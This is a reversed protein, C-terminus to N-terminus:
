RVVPVRVVRSTGGAIMRAFYMGTGVGIGNQDRGDWTVETPGSALERDVLSRISRGMVDYLVLRTRMRGPLDLRFRTSGHSPSIGALALWLVGRRPEPEPVGVLQGVNTLWFQNTGGWVVKRFRINSGSFGAWFYTGNVNLMESGQHVYEPSAATLHLYDYLNTPTTSWHSATRDTVDTGTIKSDFFVIRTSDPPQHDGATFMIRWTAGFDQGPAQHISDAFVHPSELRGILTHAYDTTPYFGLDLWNTVTNPNSRAVGVAYHGPDIANEATYFMLLQATANQPDPMVYPDRFNWPHTQAAWATQIPDLVKASERVWHGPADITDIVTTSAYGITQDGSESVGTYFMYFKTGFQVISPAWVHLHDWASVDSTNAHFADLSNPTSNWNILDRSWAHAFTIENTSDARGDNWHRIYYIHFLSKWVGGVVTPANIFAFDKPRAFPPVGGWFTPDYFYAQDPVEAPSEVVDQPVEGCSMVGQSTGFSVSSNPLPIPITATAVVSSPGSAETALSVSGQLEPASINVSEVGQLDSGIAEVRLTTTSHDSTVRLIAPSYDGEIGGNFTVENSALVISSDPDSPDLAVVKLKGHGGASLDILFHASTAANSGSSCFYATIDIATSDTPTNGVISDVKATDVLCAQPFPEFQVGLSDAVWQLRWTAPLTSEASDAQVVLVAQTSQVVTLNNSGGAWHLQIAQAAQPVVLMAFMLLSQIRRM